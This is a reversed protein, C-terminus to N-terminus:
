GPEEVAHEAPDRVEALGLGPRDGRYWDILGHLLLLGRSREGGGALTTARLLLTGGNTLAVPRFRAV